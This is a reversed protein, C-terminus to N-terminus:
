FLRKKSSKIITSCQMQHANHGRDYDTHAYDKSYARYKTKIQYDPRFTLGKRKLKPKTLDRKNASYIVM